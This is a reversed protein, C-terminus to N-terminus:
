GWRVGTSANRSTLESSKQWERSDEKDEPEFGDKRAEDSCSKCYTEPKEDRKKRVRKTRMGIEGKM